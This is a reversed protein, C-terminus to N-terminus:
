RPGCRTAMPSRAGPRCARGPRRGSRRGAAASRRAEAVAPQLDASRYASVIRYRADQPMMTTAGFVWRLRNEEGGPGPAPGTGRAASPRRRRARRRGPARRGAGAPRARASWRRRRRRHQGRGLVVLDLGHHRDVAASVSGTPPRPPRGPRPASGAGSRRLVVHHRPDSPAFIAWDQVPGACSRMTFPEPCRPDPRPGANTFLMVRRLVGSLPHHLDVRISADAREEDPVQGVGVLQGVLQLLLTARCWAPSAPAPRPRRLRWAM